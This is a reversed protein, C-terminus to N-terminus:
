ASKGLNFYIDDEELDIGYTSIPNRLGFSQMVKMKPVNIKLNLEKSQAKLEQHIM